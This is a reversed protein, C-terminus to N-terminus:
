GQMVYKDLDLGHYLGHIFGGMFSDGSGVASKIEGEDIKLAPFHKFSSDSALIVGFKGLTVVITSLRSQQSQKAATQFLTKIMEKVVSQTEGDFNSISPSFTSFKATDM